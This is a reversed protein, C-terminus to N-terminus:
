RESLPHSQWSQEWRTIDIGFEQSMKRSDRILASRVEDGGAVAKSKPAEASYLIQRIGVRKIANLLRHMDLRRMEKAVRTAARFLWPYRLAKKEGVRKNLHDPVCKVEVSLHDCLEAVFREPSSELLEYSMIVVNETGFIECWSKIGEYYESHKRAMRMSQFAENLPTGDPIYGARVNHHYHSLFRSYPERLTILIKVSQNDNKIKKAADIDGFYSPGVEGRVVNDSVSDFQRLFWDSGKNYNRSFYYTEKVTVPVSVQGHWAMYEHIWSTGTKMPGVFVFDLNMTAGTLIM